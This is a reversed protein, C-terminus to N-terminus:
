ISATRRSGQQRHNVLISKISDILIINKSAILLLFANYGHFSVEVDASECWKGLKLSEWCKQVYVDDIDFSKMKTKPIEKGNCLNIESLPVEVFHKLKAITSRSLNLEIVKCKMKPGLLEDIEPWTMVRTDNESKIEVNNAPAQWKKGFLTKGLLPNNTISWSGLLKAQIIQDSKTSLKEWNLSIDDIGISVREPSMGMKLAMEVDDRLLSSRSVINKLINFFVDTKSERCHPLLIYVPTNGGVIDKHQEM